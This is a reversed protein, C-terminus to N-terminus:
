MLTTHITNYSDDKNFIFLIYLTNSGKDNDYDPIYIENKVGM